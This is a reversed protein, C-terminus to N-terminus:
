EDKAQDALRTLVVGLLMGGIIFIFAYDKIFTTETFENIALLIVTTIIIGIAPLLNKKM